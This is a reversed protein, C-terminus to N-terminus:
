KYVSILSKTYYIVSFGDVCKSVRKISSRIYGSRIPVFPM